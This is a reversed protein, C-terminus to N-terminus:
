KAEMGNPQASAAAPGPPSASAAPQSAAQSGTGPGAGSAAAVVDALSAQPTPQPTSTKPPQPQPTSFPAGKQAALAAANQWAQLAQEYQIQEQSKEFPRLDLGQQKMLYSFMPPINFGSGLAPSSAVAQITTQLLDTGLIKDSPLEGDTVKFELVANRLIAPDVTVQKRAEHNYLEGPPQRQLMNIKIVEKIPVMTQNEIMLAISQNRNNSHGMTDVFEQRTKNGKVFQGQQTPNQGNVLNAFRVIMDSNQLLSQAQEDRYPFQYVAESVPKGYASPRVPIKAAPNDSNINKETIRSPDYLVRDTVLRRKSAIDANWHASAMDQFPIANQAFSKTQFQLGDELPQCFFIPIYSHANTLREGYLLVQRNIIIFKWVQPTNEEPVRLNFDSPLIRAYLTFVEYMNQYKLRHEGQSTPDGVAWSMWDFTNASYARIPMPNVQPYYYGLWQPLGTVLGLGSEFAKIAVAPPVTGYLDNIYKKLKIRSYLKVYGAFEGDKYVDAPPVRPDFVTNYMDMRTCVNGEWQKNKVKVGGPATMDTEFAPTTLQKWDVEMGSLNYKLGDRFFMIFNRIWGAQISNNAIITEMMMAADAFQPSAAVGFMPYGTLFIQELYGLAAEVQPMVIPVVMNQIRTKDGLLNAIVARRNEKTWDGERMYERDITELANRITWQNFLLECARSAYNVVARSSDANFKFQINPLAM